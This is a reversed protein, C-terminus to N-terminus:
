IRRGRRIIQLLHTTSGSDNLDSAQSLEDSSCDVDLLIRHCRGDGCALDKFKGLLDDLDVPFEAIGRVLHILEASFHTQYLNQHVVHLAFVVLELM